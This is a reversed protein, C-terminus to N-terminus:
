KAAQLKASGGSSVPEIKVYSNSSEAFGLSFVLDCDNADKTNACAVDGPILTNAISYINLEQAPVKLRLNYLGGSSPNYFSILISKGAKLQASIGTQDGTENWFLNFYVDTPKM